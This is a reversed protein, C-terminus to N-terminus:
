RATFTDVKVINELPIEWLCAQITREYLAHQFSWHLYNMDFMHEWSKEIKSAINPPYYYYPHEHLFGCEQELEKDIADWIEAEKTEDEHIFLKISGYAYMWLDFNSLLVKDCEIIFEIRVGKLGKWLFGSERLDPRYKKGRHQYWAWILSPERHTPKFKVRKYVQHRMWNYAYKFLIESEDQEFTAATQAHNVQIVGKEQHKKWNELTTIHWLRIKESMIYKKCFYCLSNIDFTPQFLLSLLNDSIRDM